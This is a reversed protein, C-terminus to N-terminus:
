IYIRINVSAVGQLEDSDISERARRGLWGRLPPTTTPFTSSAIAHVKLLRVLYNACLLLPSMPLYILKSSAYIYICYVAVVLGASAGEQMGTGPEHDRLLRWGRLGRV